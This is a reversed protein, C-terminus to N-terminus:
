KGPVIKPAWAGNEVQYTTIAKNTTDGNADFAIAGTVGDGSFAAVNAIVADKGAPTMLSAVDKDKAAKLISSIIVNAADYAYADYAAIEDNPFMAKYADTFEQGKPLDAIPLGVSTCLDGEAADKGALNVYEADYLGDGGMLPAKIGADSAQKALLAGANYIGGYYILDVNEAKIKTVLANFDTDKDSTKETFAVEGGLEEFKNKFEAALGEGYPTSDDIVVASKFGLEGFAAEAGV